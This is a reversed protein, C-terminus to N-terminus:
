IRTVVIVRRKTCNCPLRLFLSRVFWDVLNTPYRRLQWAPDSLGTQNTILEYRDRWFM